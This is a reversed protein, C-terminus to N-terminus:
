SEGSWCFTLLCKYKLQRGLSHFESCVYMAVNVQRQLLIGAKNSDNERGNRDKLCRYRGNFRQM